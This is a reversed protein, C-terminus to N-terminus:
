NEGRVTFEPKVYPLKLEGHHVKNHCSQCLCILNSLSHDNNGGKAKPIIHHADIRVGDEKTAGCIQCTFDALKKCKNRQRQWYNYEDRDKFWSMKYARFENVHEQYYAKQHALKEERHEQYYAKRQEKTM